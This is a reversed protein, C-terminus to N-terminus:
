TGRRLHDHNAVPPCHEFSETVGVERDYVFSTERSRRFASWAMLPVFVAATVLHLVMLSVTTAGTPGANLPGALSLVTVVAAVATWIRAVDKTVRELVALLIWGAACAFASVLVVAAPGVPMM